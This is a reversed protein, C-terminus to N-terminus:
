TLMENIREYVPMAAAEENALVIVTDGLKPYMRFQAEIGPAGGGHGLIRMGNVTEEEFGYAYKTPAGPRHTEVKGTLVTNTMAPSLLRDTLLAYAYRALDDLTSYAGGSPNGAGGAGHSDRLSLAGGPGPTPIYGHAMNPVQDVTYWGTHSMGAPAFIHSRVYDYYSEKTVAEIIAGLVVFGSNSYSFRTGPQFQLPETVIRKM